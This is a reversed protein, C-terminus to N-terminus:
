SLTATTPNCYYYYRHCDHNSRLQGFAPEMLKLVGKTCADFEVALMLVM